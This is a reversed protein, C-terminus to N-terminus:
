APGWALWCRRLGLGVRAQAPPPTALPGAHSGGTCATTESRPRGWGRSWCGDGRLAAPWELLDRAPTSCRAPLGALLLGDHPGPGGRRGPMAPRPLWRPRRRRPLLTAADRGSAPGLRSTAQRWDARAGRARQCPQPESGDRAAPAVSGPDPSCPPGHQRGPEAGRRPPNASRSSPSCPPLRISPRRFATGGSQGDPHRRGAQAHQRSYSPTMRHMAGPRCPSAPDLRPLWSLGAPHRRRGAHNEKHHIGDLISHLAPRSM